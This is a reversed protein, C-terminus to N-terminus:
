STLPEFGRLEVCFARLGCDGPKEANESRFLHPGTRGSSFLSNPLGDTVWAVVTGDPAITADVLTMRLTM